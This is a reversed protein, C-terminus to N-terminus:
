KVVTGTITFTIKPTGKDNTEVSVFRNIPGVGQPGHFAPDFIATLKGVKGPDLEGVWDSMDSMGFAPSDKGDITMKAKTCHCSTKINYFKLTETGTNKIAFAKVAYGGKMPITGFDFSTPDQTEARAKESLSIKSSIPASSISTSKSVLAIGGFLITLTLLSIIIIFKKDNM